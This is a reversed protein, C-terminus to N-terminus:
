LCTSFFLLLLFSAAFPPTNSAKNWWGPIDRLVYGLEVCRSELPEGRMEGSGADSVGYSWCLEDCNTAGAEWPRGREQGGADLEVVRSLQEGGLVLETGAEGCFPALRVVVDWDDLEGSRTLEVRIRDQATM